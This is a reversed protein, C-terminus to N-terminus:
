GESLLLVGRLPSREVGTVGGAVEVFVSLRNKETQKKKEKKLFCALPFFFTSQVEAVDDQGRGSM